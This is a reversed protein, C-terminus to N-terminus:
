SEVGGKIFLLPSRLLDTWGVVAKRAHSTFSFYIMATRSHPRVARPAAPFHRVFDKADFHMYLGDSDMAHTSKLKLHTM